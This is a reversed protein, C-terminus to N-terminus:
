KRWWGNLKPKPDLQEYFGVQRTKANVWIGLRRESKGGYVGRYRFVYWDAIRLPDTDYSEEARM